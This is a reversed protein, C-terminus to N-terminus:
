FLELLEKFANSFLQSIQWEKLLALFNIAQNVVKAFNGPTHINGVGMVFLRAQKGDSLWDAVDNQDPGDGLRLVPTGLSDRHSEPLSSNYMWLALAALLIAGPEQYGSTSHFRCQLFLTAAHLAAKRASEGHESVWDMLKQRTGQQKMRTVRWGSFDLLEKLPVHRVVGIMHYYQLTVANARSPGPRKSPDLLTWLDSDRDMGRDIREGHMNVLGLLGMDEAQQMFLMDRFHGFLILLFTFAGANESVANYRYLSQMEERLTSSEKTKETLKSFRRGINAIALVLLHPAVNPDFTPRHIIPLTEHFEELYLQIFANLTKLPPLRSSEPSQSIEADRPNNMLSVWLKLGQYGEESLGKVHGFDELDADLTRPSAPPVPGRGNQAFWAPSPLPFSLLGETSLLGSADVSGVVGEFACNLPLPLEAPELSSSSATLHGNIQLDPWSRLDMGDWISAAIDTPELTMDEMSVPQELDVGFTSEHSTVTIVEEGPQPGPETQPTGLSPPSEDLLSAMSGDEEINITDNASLSPVEKTYM